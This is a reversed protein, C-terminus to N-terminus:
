PSVSAPPPAEPSSSSSTATGGRSRVAEVGSSWAAAALPGGLLSGAFLLVSDRIEPRGVEWVALGAGLLFLGMDRM